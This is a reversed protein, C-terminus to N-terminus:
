EGGVVLVERTAELVRSQVDQLSGSVTAGAATRHGGGGFQRAAGSVDYGPQSRWSVKVENDALEIFIVRVLSGKIASLQNVLDADDRGGYGVLKRDELTLTAWILGNERRLNTLGAGWYRYAEFSKEILATRYLRSLDPGQEMLDAAIRLAKPTTNPTQFGITDTILGTLLAEAAAKPIQLDGACLLDYVIETTACANEIVLNIAAFGDNTPHHDINADPRGYEDLASGTRVLDSCDVAIAVDFVGDPRDSIRDAGPLSRFNSPVGDELVMGVSKGAAELALGLGLLSGVADGDPRLHSVLLFRRGRRILDLIAQVPGDSM